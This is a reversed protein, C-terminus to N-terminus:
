LIGLKEKLAQTLTASFNIGKEVALENLWRPITLTKKVPKKNLKRYYEDMDFQILVVHEGEAAHISKLDSPAPVPGESAEDWTSLALGLCDICMDYTEELTRGQTFAGKFDPFSVWYGGNEADHYIAPYMYKEM